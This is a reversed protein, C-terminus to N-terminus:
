AAKSIRVILAGDADLGIEGQEGLGIQRALKAVPSDQSEAFPNWNEGRSHALKILSVARENQETRTMAVEHDSKREVPAEGRKFLPCAPVDALAAKFVADCSEREVAPARVVVETHPSYLGGTNIGTNRAADLDAAERTRYIVDTGPWAAAIGQNARM